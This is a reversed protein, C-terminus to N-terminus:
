RAFGSSPASYRVPKAPESHCGSRPRTLLPDPISSIYSIRRRLQFFVRRARTWFHLFSWGASRFVRRHQHWLLLATGHFLLWHFFSRIARANRSLPRRLLGITLAQYDLHAAEERLIRKCISHLLCSRTAGRLARYFPVALVEATVLVTVCIELGALKRLRRFISDVWNDTLRPIGERDLFDGLMASHRQEEAIFLELSPVFWPDASRLPHASARRLLGRGRAWEGLQFQRISRAVVRREKPCLLGPDYWPLNDPSAQNRLFHSHWRKYPSGPAVASTKGPPMPPTYLVKYQLTFRLPRYHRAYPARLNNQEEVWDQM